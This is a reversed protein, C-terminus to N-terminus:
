FLVGKIDDLPINHVGKELAQTLDEQLIDLLTPFNLQLTFNTDNEEAIYCVNHECIWSQSFKQAEDDFSLKFRSKAVYFFWM